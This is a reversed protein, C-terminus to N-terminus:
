ANNGLEEHIDSMAKNMSEFVSNRAELDDKEVKVKKAKKSTRSSVGYTNEFEEETLYQGTEELWRKAEWGKHIRLKAYARRIHEQLTKPVDGTIANMKITNYGIARAQMVM